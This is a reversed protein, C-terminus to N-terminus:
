DRWYGCDMCLINPDAEDATDTIIVGQLHNSGCKPCTTGEAGKPLPVFARIEINENRNDSWLKKDFKM